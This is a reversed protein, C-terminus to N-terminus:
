PRSKAKASSASAAKAEPKPRPKASPVKRMVDSTMGKLQSIQADNLLYSFTWLPELDSIRLSGDDSKSQIENFKSTAAAIGIAEGDGIQQRCFCAFRDKLLTAFEGDSVPFTPKRGALMQSLMNGCADVLGRPGPRCFLYLDSLQMQQVGHLADKVSVATERSPLIRLVANKLVQEGAEGATGKIFAMDIKYSADVAALGSEHKELFEQHLGLADVIMVLSM